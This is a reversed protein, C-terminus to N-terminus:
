DAAGSLLAGASRRLAAPDVPKILWPHGSEKLESITDPRTDGIDGGLELDTIILDPLADLGGTLLMGAEATSGAEVVRCGWDALESALATRALPNDDVVLVTKQGIFEIDSQKVARRPPARVACPLEIAFCSGKGVVSRVSLRLDLLDALRRVIALGLGLGPQRQEQGGLRQFEQFAADIKDAPIGAGTDWIEIRVHNDHRRAGVLVRGKNTFKVANSILNRLISEFLAPDTEVWLMCGVMDLRLGKARAATGYETKLRALMAEVCFWEPYPEMVGGDLRSVDLLADLMSQMTKTAEGISAVLRLAEVGEVRRALAAAFLAAAHLPQRLDHSAAALFRSKAVNALDAERKAGELARAARKRETIDDFTIVVGEVANDHARYPLIRRCFFVGSGAEIEREVPTATELVARADETLKGDAALSHLDALPRGIDSPLISFLSRTAPTFFRINLGADLFLTAVDTSYLVNQLDSATTRQRELTEQLQTNLATLEENLSQLEEKSTLLEENTSQFEENVSLAEENIAKQEEGSIELNRIASQLETKTAALEQELESLQAQDGPSTPRVVAGREPKQADVFCVLLLDDGDSSVPQVSIDFAGGQDEDIHGGPVVVRARNQVALQIAARLKTRLGQRAMALLDQTPHGPAVRLYRDTPGLSFLCEHRQKILVAAPAYSEMVLRRCLDALVNQRSPASRQEPRAQSRITEGAAGHFGLDGPRSKGIRRYLREAKAVVEFRDSGGGATESSGLLLLGGPVLAFHFLSLVKTQAEPSLYILLNRCSIMNLRSFPPDALVDQVTFVVAARLDPLVRYGRDEKIFFRTLRATSVQGEIATPYLGERAVAVADPDLDSAFLQLKIDLGAEAIQERFLM